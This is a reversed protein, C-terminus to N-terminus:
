FEGVRLKIWNRERGERGDRGEHSIRESKGAMKQMKEPHRAAVIQNGAVEMVFKFCGSVFNFRNRDM